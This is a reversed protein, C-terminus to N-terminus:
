RSNQRLPRFRGPPSLGQFGFTIYATHNAAAGATSNKDDFYAYRYGGRVYWEQTMSYTVYLEGYARDRDGTNSTLSDDTARDQMLRGSGGWAFRASMPRNYELRVQDTERRSGLGSPSIFRGVAYRFYGVRNSRYGVLEVGWNSSSDSVGPNDASENDSTEFKFQLDMRNVETWQHHFQFVGGVSDSKDGDDSEFKTWYPGVEIESRQGIDYIGTLEAYPSKYGVRSNESDSEYDVREYTLETGILARETLNYRIKPGASYSTRTTGVLVIGTEDTGPNSPDFEDFAARGYEANFTDQRAFRGILDTDLRQTKRRTRADLFLSVPDVGSRNPFEQLVIRPRATSDSTPTLYGITSELTARYAESADRQSDDSFMERNTNYEVATEVKPVFYWEQSWAAPAATLAFVAYGAAKRSSSSM